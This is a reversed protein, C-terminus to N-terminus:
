AEGKLKTIIEATDFVPDTIDYWGFPGFAFMEDDSPHRPPTMLNEDRSMPLGVLTDGFQPDTFLAYWHGAPGAIVKTSTQKM